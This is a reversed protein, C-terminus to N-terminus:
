MIVAEAIGIIDLLPWLGSGYPGGPRDAVALKGARGARARYEDATLRRRRLNGGRTSCTVPLRVAM